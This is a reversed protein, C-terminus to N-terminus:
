RPLTSHGRLLSQPAGSMSASPLYEPRVGQTLRCLRLGVANEVQRQDVAHVMEVRREHLALGFLADPRPHVPMSTTNEQDGLGAAAQVLSGLVVQPTREVLHPHIVDVESLHM